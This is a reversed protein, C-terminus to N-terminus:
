TAVDGPRWTAENVGPRSPESGSDRWAELLQRARSLHATAAGLDPRVGAFKVLDAENLILDCRGRSQADGLQLPLRATVEGSTLGLHPIAGADLLCERLVLAVDAYLPAAGNGSALAAQEMESLRLLAREFPGRPLPEAARRSLPEAARSRRLLWGLGAAVLATLIAFPAWVPGGLSRLPRIDVLPPLGAPVTSIIEVAVPQHVLTDPPADPTPRYLLALTPVPQRGLRYFAMLVRGHWIGDKGQRLSDTQLIRVGEAPLNLNRPALDLLETGPPMYVTVDFTVHDGLTARPTEPVVTLTQATLPAALLTCLVVVAARM